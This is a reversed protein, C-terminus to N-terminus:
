RELWEPYRRFGTDRKPIVIDEEYVDTRYPLLPFAVAAVREDYTVILVHMSRLVVHALDEIPYTRLPERIVYGALIQILVCRGLRLTQSPLQIEVHRTMTQRIKRMSRKMLPRQGIGRERGGRAKPHELDLNPM